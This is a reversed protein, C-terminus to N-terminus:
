SSRKLLRKYSASTATPIRLTVASTGGTPLNDYDITFPHNSEVFRTAPASAGYKNGVYAIAPKLENKLLIFPIFMGHMEFSRADKSKPDWMIIFPGWSHEIPVGAPDRMLDYGAMAYFKFTLQLPLGPIGSLQSAGVHFEIYPAVLPAGYTAATIAVSSAPATQESAEVQNQKVLGSAQELNAIFEASNIRNLNIPGNIIKGGKVSIAPVIDDKTLMGAARAIKNERNVVKRAAARTALKKPPDGEFLGDGLVTESAVDGSFYVEDPDGTGFDDLDGIESMIDALELGAKAAPANNPDAKALADAAELLESYTM